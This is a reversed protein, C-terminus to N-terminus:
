RITKETLSITLDRIALQKGWVVSARPRKYKQPTLPADPWTWGPFRDTGHTAPPWPSVHRELQPACPFTISGYAWCLLKEDNILFLMCVHIANGSLAM